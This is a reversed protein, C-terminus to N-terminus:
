NARGIKNAKSEKSKKIIEEETLTKHTTSIPQAYTLFIELLYALLNVLQLCFILLLIKYWTGWSFILPLFLLSTVLFEFIILFYISKWLSSKRKDNPIWFHMGTLVGNLLIISLTKLAITWVKDAFFYQLSIFIFVVLFAITEFVIAKRVFSSLFRNM